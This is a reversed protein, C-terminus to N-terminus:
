NKKLRGWMKGLASFVSEAKSRPAGAGPAPPAAVQGESVCWGGDVALIQGTVFKSEDSMFFVAAADLDEPQGIRGGDLPQKTHIFQLIEEDGQARQSMPTAVLAPALVNCRIGAAAYHAAVSKTFGIVASKAAAYAHTSFFHPSPSWGLVSSMNLITGPTRQKLFQRAAARNSYFLSTLNEELTHRWGEDSIEHLPGDGERRGSGGAVHYLGHFGGFRQLATEIAAPATGPRTADGVVGIAGKGLQAEAATVKDAKRGVVVVRGDQALFARAASLGLGSTGGLIVLSKGTLRGM